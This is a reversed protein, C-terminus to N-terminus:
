RKGGATPMHGGVHGIVILHEDNDVDYHIRLPNERTGGKIHPVIRATKRGEDYSIERMKMLSGTAQTLARETLAM